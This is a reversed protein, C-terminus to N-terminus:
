RDSCIPQMTMAPQLLLLLLVLRPESRAFEDDGMATTRGAEDSVGHGGRWLVEHCTSDEWVFGRGAEWVVEEFGDDVLGLPELLETAESPADLASPRGVRLRAAGPHPVRLGVHAVLRGNTPGCHPALSTSPAIASFMAAQIYPYQAKMEGLRACTVRLSKAATSTPGGGDASLGCHRWVNLERWGGHPRALGETQVRFSPLLANAEDGMESASRELAELVCAYPARDHLGHRPPMPVRPLYEAPHHWAAARSWLGLNVASALLHLGRQQQATAGSLLMYALSSAVAGSSPELSAAVEFLALAEAPRERARLMSGLQYYGSSELPSLRLSTRYASEADAVDSGVADCENEDQLLRDTGEGAKQELLEALELYAAGTAASPALAIAAKVSFAAEATRGLSRLADSREFHIDILM